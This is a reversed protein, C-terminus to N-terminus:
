KRAGKRSASKGAKKAKKAKKAPKVKTVPLVEKKADYDDLSAYTGAKVRWVEITGDPLETFNLVDGAGCGLASCVRAPVTVVLDAGAKRIMVPASWKIGAPEAAKGRAPSKRNTSM